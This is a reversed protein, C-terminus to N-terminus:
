TGILRGANTFICKLWISYSPAMGRYLSLIRCLLIIKEQRSFPTGDADLKPLGERDIEIDTLKGFQKYEGSLIKVTTEHAGSAGLFLGHRIPGLIRNDGDWM